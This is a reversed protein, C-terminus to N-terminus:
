VSPGINFLFKLDPDAWDHSVMFNSIIHYSIIKKNRRDELNKWLCPPNGM